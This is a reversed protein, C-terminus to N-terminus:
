ILTVNPAITRITPTPYVQLEFLQEPTSIAIENIKELFYDTEEVDDFDTNRIYFRKVSKLCEVVSIVGEVMDETVNRYGNSRMTLYRLSKMRRLGNIIRSSFISQTWQFDMEKVNPFNCIFDFLQSESINTIDLGLKHLTPCVSKLRFREDSEDSIYLILEVLNPLLLEGFNQLQHVSLHLISLNHMENQILGIIKHVAFSYCEFSFKSINGGKGCM